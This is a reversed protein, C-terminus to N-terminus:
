FTKTQNFIIEDRLKIIITYEGDEIPGIIYSVDTYCHCNANTIDERETIVITDNEITFSVDVKTFGCNVMANKHTVYIYGNKYEIVVDESLNKQIDDQCETFTINEIVIPEKPKECAGLLWVVLLGALIAHTKRVFPIEGNKLITKSM